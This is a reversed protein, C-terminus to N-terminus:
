VPTSRSGGCFVELLQAFTFRRAFVATDTFAHSAAFSKFSQLFRTDEAGRPVHRHGLPGGREGTRPAGLPPLCARHAGHGAHQKAFRFPLVGATMQDHAVALVSNTTGFDIGITSSPRTM